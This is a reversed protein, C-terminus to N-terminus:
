ITRFLSGVLEWFHQYFAFTFGDPGSAGSANSGFVAEKLESITFHKELELIAQENVLYKNDWFNDNLFTQQVHREGFLTKYFEIIHQEIQPFSDSM